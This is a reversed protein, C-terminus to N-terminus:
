LVCPVILNGPFLVTGAGPGSNSPPPPFGQPQQQQHYYYHEVAVVKPYLMQLIMEALGVAPIIPGFVRCSPVVFCPVISCQLFEEGPDIYVLSILAANGGGPSEGERNSYALM